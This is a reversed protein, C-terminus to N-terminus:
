LRQRMRRKNSCTPTNRMLERVLVTQEINKKPRKHKMSNSYRDDFPKLLRINESLKSSDQEIDKFINNKNTSQNHTPQTHNDM